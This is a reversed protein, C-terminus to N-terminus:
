SVNDKWKYGPRECPRKGEVTGVFIRYATRERAHCMDSGCGAGKKLSIFSVFAPVVFRMKSPIDYCSVYNTLCVCM